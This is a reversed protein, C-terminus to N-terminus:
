RCTRKVESEWGGDEHGGRVAGGGPAGGREAQVRVGSSCGLNGACCALVGQAEEVVDGERMCLSM